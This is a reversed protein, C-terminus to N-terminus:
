GRLLRLDAAPKRGRLDELREIRDGLDMLENELAKLESDTQAIAGRSLGLVLMTASLPLSLNLRPTM